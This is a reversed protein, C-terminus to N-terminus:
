LLQPVAMVATYSPDPITLYNLAFVKGSFELSCTSKKINEPSLELTGLVRALSTGLAKAIAEKATWYRYFYTLVDHVNLDNFFVSEKPHFFRNVLGLADVDRHYQIDIGIPAFQHLAILLCDESHSINFQLSTRPFAISPKGDTNYSFQLLSPCVSLHEAIIKRTYYRNFLYKERAAFICYRQAAEKESIPLLNMNIQGMAEQNSYRLM